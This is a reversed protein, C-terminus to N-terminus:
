KDIQAKAAKETEQGKVCVTPSRPHTILEDCPRYRCCSCFLHVCVDMGLNPNSGVILTNQSTSSM